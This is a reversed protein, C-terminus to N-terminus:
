LKSWIRFMGMRNGRHFTHRALRTGPIKAFDQWEFNWKRCNLKPYIKKPSKYQKLNKFKSEKERESLGVIVFYDALRSM